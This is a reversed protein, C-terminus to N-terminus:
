QLAYGCHAFWSLADTATVTALAQPIVRDLAERTRAKAKRLFTNVKGWCPEIPSLDPSYPPLYLRRAGRRALAQQIGPAKHVALNDMVVLDGPTLTPALIHKVYARCVETETAGDVTMVAQIGEVGLTGLRTVKPGYHQPVTGIVREGKPARGYLPTLAVNVGSEDVLKLRRVDLATIRQGDSVRAQQVRTTEREAAHLAKKKTALGAPVM